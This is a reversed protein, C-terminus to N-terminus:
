FKREREKLQIFLWIDRKIFFDARTLLIKNSFHTLQPIKVVGRRETM